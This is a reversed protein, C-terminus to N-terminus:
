LENPPTGVFLVLELDAAQWHVPLAQNVGSVDSTPPM